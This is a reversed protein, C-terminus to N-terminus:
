SMYMEFSGDENVFYYFHEGSLSVHEEFVFPDTDRKLSLHKKWTKTTSGVTECILARTVKFNKVDRIYRITENQRYGKYSDHALENGSVMFCSLPLEGVLKLGNTQSVVMAPILFRQKLEMAHLKAVEPNFLLRGTHQEISILGGSPLAQRIHEIIVTSDDKGDADAPVNSRAIDMPLLLSLSSLVFCAISAAKKTSPGNSLKLM